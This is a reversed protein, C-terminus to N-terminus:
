DDDDEDLAQRLIENLRDQWDPGLARLKRLTDADLPLTVREKGSGDAGDSGGKM